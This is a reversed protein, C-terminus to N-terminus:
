LDRVLSRTPHHVAGARVVLSPVLREDVEISDGEADRLTWPGEVPELVTIDARSGPALTGIVDDEGLLRAPSLTARAIVDALPMGLAVLKNLAGCLSYDLLSDDHYGHFDGHVDSGVTDPLIGAEMMARAVRFSFNIGHGIDFRIGKDRAEFVAEPVTDGPGMIGDPMNSYVHALTDGPRLVGVVRGIVDAPAPRRHEDVPFLEGTHAYLPLGAADGARVALELVETGWRSLAGSEGHCKIGRVLRPHESAAAVLADVDVMGPNHLTQGETGGKLAGAVNISLFARVDTRAPEAIHARFGGVTWAGASGQDVVTTAGSEIGAEDAPLGFNTGWEYVHVHLDVLGPCVVADGADVREAARHEPLRTALAAIRGDRVAVEGPGDFGSAPDIVRSSRIVLDFQAESM